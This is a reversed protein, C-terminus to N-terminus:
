SFPAMVKIIDIFLSPHHILATQFIKLLTQKEPDLKHLAHATANLQEDSLKRVAEKIKYNRRHAKGGIQDWEKEYEELFSASCNKSKVGRAAIQGALKGAAMATTIGGGSIPNSQWAADGALLFGEGSIRSLRNGCPVGGVIRNLVPLDPFYEDIFNNLRVRASKSKVVNGAIGLGVNAMGNGKPFVWAYGGPFKKQSFYFICTDMGISLNGLLVQACTEMDKMLITTNVGAWRGVRSEVGDAGIVIDSRIQRTEGDLQCLVGEVKKGNLLLNRVYARTEIRAGSLGARNALELDFIKRNLVYGTMNVQPCIQTGDPAVFMFRNITAAVWSLPIKEGLIREVGDKGVAEACRVPTGIERDKELLLVEVGERAAYLAAMSGAPGGGVVIVDYKDKIKM